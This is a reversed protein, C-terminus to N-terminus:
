SSALTLQRQFKIGFSLSLSRLRFGRWHIVVDYGEFWRGVDWEVGSERRLYDTIM